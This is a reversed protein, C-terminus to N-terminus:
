FCDEDRPCLPIKKKNAEALTRACPGLLHDPMYAHASVQLCGITIADSWGCSSGGTFLQCTSYSADIIPMGAKNEVWCAPGSDIVKLTVCDSDGCCKIQAGCGFRMASTAYWDMCDGCSGGCAVESDCFSTLYYTADDPINTCCNSKCTCEYDTKNSRAFVCAVVALLVLLHANMGESKKM